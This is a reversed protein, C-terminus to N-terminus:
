LQPAHVTNMIPAGAPLANAVDGDAVELPGLIRFEM